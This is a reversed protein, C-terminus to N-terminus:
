IYRYMRAKIWCGRCRTGGKRFYLAVALAIYIVAATGMKSWTKNARGLPSGTEFQKLPRRLAKVFFERSSQM